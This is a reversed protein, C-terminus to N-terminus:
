PQSSKGLEMNTKAIAVRGLAGETLKGDPEIGQRELVDVIQRAHHASHWTCRDLLQHLSIGEYHIIEFETAVSQRCAREM